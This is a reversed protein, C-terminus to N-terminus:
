KQLRYLLWFILAGLNNALLDWWTDWSPIYMLGTESLFFEFLENTVGLGSVLFYLSALELLPHTRWSLSQKIYLWLLGSFLGGGVFHKVFDTDEGAINVSPLYFSVLYLFAATALLSSPRVPRHILRELLPPLGFYTVLPILISLAVSIM